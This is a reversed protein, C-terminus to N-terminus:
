KIRHRCYPMEDDINEYVNLWSIAQLHLYNDM